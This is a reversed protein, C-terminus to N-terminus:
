FQFYIFSNQENQMFIVLIVIFVTYALGRLPAPFYQYWIQTVLNHKERLLYEVIHLAFLMASLVFYKLLVKDTLFIMPNLTLMEQVMNIASGVGKARFFVWGICTLHFFVFAELCGYLRNDKLDKFGLNNTIRVYIKHAILLLGHFMGWAIFTWAAGHWLGSIAMALFLNIQQRVEGVRSGGLPIYIYDKIWNSLTIHWRRWFETPNKSLYPTKFNLDLKIGFLHGIGLAMESYASFDFYIQFAFLYAAIWIEGSSLAAGRNFFSDAYVSINDALVIKKFLGLALYTIGLKIRGYDLSIKQLREVQPILDKGRMIPGAILQAFFSIFVWFDLWSKCSEIKGKYVDVLYAIMQFTYFSIGIPLLLKTFVSGEWILNVSLFNELNKLLFVSYKFFALNGVNLVIGLWLFIEGYTGKLFLSVVYTLIAIVIFLVLYGLGSAGYFIINAFALTYIRWAPFLYFIILSMTLMIMFEPTHFLM